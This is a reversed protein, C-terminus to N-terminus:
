QVISDFYLVIVILVSEHQLHHKQEVIFGMIFCGLVNSWLSASLPTRVNGLKALGLRVFTGVYSFLIISVISSSCPQQIVSPVNNDVDSVTAVIDMTVQENM